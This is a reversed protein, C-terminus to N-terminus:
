MLVICLLFLLLCPLSICLVDYLFLYIHVIEEKRGAKERRDCGRYVWFEILMERGGEKGGEHTMYAGTSVLKIGRGLKISLWRTGGRSRNRGERRRRRRDLRWCSRSRLRMMMCLLILRCGKRTREEEEEEEEEEKVEDARRQKRQEYRRMIWCMVSGGRGIRRLFRCTRRSVGGYRWRMHGMCLRRRLLPLLALGV